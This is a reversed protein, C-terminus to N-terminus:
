PGLIMAGENTGSLFYGGGITGYLLIAGHGTVKLPSSGETVKILGTKLNLTGSVSEGHVRGSVITVPIPANTDNINDLVWLNTLNALVSEAPPNTWQSLAIPNTSTFVSLGAHAHVWALDTGAANSPNLNIWGLLLGKSNYLNAYLPVEGTQSVPVSQSFTAGDALAGTITAKGLHNTILAYGDGDPSHSPGSNTDPQILMTYEASSLNNSARDATLTAV